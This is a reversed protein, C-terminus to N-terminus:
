ELMAPRQRASLVMDYSVAVPNVHLTGVLLRVFLVPKTSWQGKEEGESGGDRFVSIVAVAM